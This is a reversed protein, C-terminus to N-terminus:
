VEKHVDVFEFFDPLSHDESCLFDWGKRRLYYVKPTKGQGPISVYGFYGVIGDRELTRLVEAAYPKTFGAIKAFQTISLFRYKLVFFLGTLADLSLTKPKTTPMAPKEGFSSM